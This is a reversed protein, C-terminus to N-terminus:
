TRWVRSGVVTRAQHEAGRRHDNVAAPENRRGWAGGSAGSELALEKRIWIDILLQDGMPGPCAAVSRGHSVQQLRVSSGPQSRGGQAGVARWGTSDRPDSGRM